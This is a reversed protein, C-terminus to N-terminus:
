KIVPYEPIKPFDPITVSVAPNPPLEPVTVHVPVPSANIVPNMAPLDIRIEPKLAKVAATLDSIAKVVAAPNLSVSLAQEAMSEPSRAGGVALYTPQGKM